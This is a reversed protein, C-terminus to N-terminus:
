DDLPEVHNSMSSSYMEIMEDAQDGMFLLALIHEASGDGKSGLQEEVLSALMHISISRWFYKRAEQAIPLWNAKSAQCIRPVFLKAKKNGVFGIAAMDMFREDEVLQRDIQDLSELGLNKAEDVFQPWGNAEHPYPKCHVLNVIDQIEM